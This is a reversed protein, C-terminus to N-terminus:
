LSRVSVFHLIRILQNSDVIIPTTKFVEELLKTNAGDLAVVNYRIHRALLENLYTQVEKVNSCLESGNDEGDTIILMNGWVEFYTELADYQDIINKCSEVVADYLRTKIENAEFTTDLQEINGFPRIDLTSGFFNLSIQIIKDYEFGAKIYKEIVKKVEKLTDKVASEHGNYHMSLSKDIVLSLLRQERLRFIDYPIDEVFIERRGSEEPIEIKDFRLYEELKKIFEPDIAM